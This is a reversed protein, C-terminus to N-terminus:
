AWIRDIRDEWTRTFVVKDDHLATLDIVLHFAEPDATLELRGRTAVKWGPREM